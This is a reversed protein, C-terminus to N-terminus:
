DIVENIWIKATLEANHNKKVYEIGQNGLRNRDKPNKIKELCDDATDESLVLIPCNHYFKNLYDRHISTLVPLGSAMGEVDLMCYNGFRPNWHGVLADGKALQNLIEQHSFWKYGKGFPFFPLDAKEVAAKIRSTGKTLNSYHLIRPSVSETISHHQIQSFDIAHPLYKPLPAGFDESTYIIDPTSCFQVYFKNYYSNGHSRIDSGHFMQVWKKNKFLKYAMWYFKWFHGNLHIIDAWKIHKLLLSLRVPLPYHSIDFDCYTRRPSKKYVRVIRTQHGFTSVEKALPTMTSAPNGIFLIKISM